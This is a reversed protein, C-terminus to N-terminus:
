ELDWEEAQLRARQTDEVAGKEAIAAWERVRRAPYDLFRRAVLAEREHEAAIDGGYVKFSNSGAVFEHFTRDDDEFQTLVWGTLTPVIPEGREDLGPPPLHRAIRRAGEVGTKEIWAQKVPDPIAAFLAQYDGIFFRWGVQEDLMLHGLADMVGEPSRAAIKQLVQQAEQELRLSDGPILRAAMRAARIPDKEALHIALVEWWEPPEAGRSVAIEFLRWACAEVGPNLLLAAPEPEPENPLRRALIDIAVRLSTRDIPAAAALREIISQLDHVPLEEGTPAFNVDYLFGAPLLGGDFLRLVRELPAVTHGASIAIEAVPVPSATEHDDLWSNVRPAHEPHAALLGGVYGRALARSPRELASELIVTLVTAGVDLRGLMQGLEVAAYAGDSTLWPLEATLSAPVSLLEGALDTVEDAWTSSRLRAGGWRQKGVVALLRGHIGDGVLSRRWNRLQETHSGATNAASTEAGSRDSPADYLLATDIEEILRAQEDDSAHAAGVIEIVEPLYGWALLRRLQETMVALAAARTPGGQAISDRLLSLAARRSLDLEQRDRPRWEPPALRGAVVPPGLIRTARWAITEALAQAAVGRVSPSSDTLRVRLRELRDAFPTATGSLVIRFLQCWIATANNAISPESEAAALRILIRESDSFHEPFQAFREALWVLARRPGWKGGEVSDGTVGRLTDLDALEVLRRVAPLFESPETDTLSILRGVVVATALDSSSRDRVWDLFYEACERRVEKPASRQVRDLFRELFISPVREVFARSEHQAWRGWADTFAATAVIEPTLYFYRSTRAVFGPGDHLGHLAAEVVSRALGLFSCLVDLESRVDGSYGVKTLLSVAALAEREQLTLRHRLYDAIGPIVPGVEGALVIRSDARCLDAALRPFGEALAAYARRREESVAPFNRALVERLADEPMKRLSLEPDPTHSRQLSNDIAIARIRGAHGALLLGLRYRGDPGCEDAILIARASQSNALHTAVHLAGAEDSCYLVVATAGPLRHVVDYALRTKGIGAEGQITRVAVPPAPGSLDVHAELASRVPQWNAVPVYVRTVAEANAAWAGLHLAETALWQHFFTLVLGPYRSAWAQLDDATLVRPSPADPRILRIEEALTGEWDKHTSPPMSDAVALRFAAGAAIQERVYGGDLLEAPRTGAYPGGKYQWVTRGLFWGTSDGPVAEVVETDVGGDPISTRINTRIAADPVSGERAHERILADMFATFPKGGGGQLLRIQDAVIALM